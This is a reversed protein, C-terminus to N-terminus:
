NRDHEDPLLGLIIGVVCLIAYGLVVWKYWSSTGIAGTVYGVMLCGLYQLYRGTMTVRFPLRHEISFYFDDKDETM